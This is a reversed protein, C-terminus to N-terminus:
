GQGTARTGLQTNYLRYEKLYTTKVQYNSHNYTFRTCMTNCFNHWPPHSLVIPLDTTLSEISAMSM